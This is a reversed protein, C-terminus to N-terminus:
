RLPPTTSQVTTVTGRSTKPDSINNFVTIQNVPYGTELDFHFYYLNYKSGDGNGSSGEQIYFTTYNDTVGIIPATLKNSAFVLIRVKLVNVNVASEVTALPDLPKIYQEASVLPAIENGKEEESILLPKKDFTDLQILGFPSFKQVNVIVTFDEGTPSSIPSNSM